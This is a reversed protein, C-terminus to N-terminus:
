RLIERRESTQLAQEIILPEDLSMAVIFFAYKGPPFLDGVPATFSLMEEAGIVCDIVADGDFLPFPKYDLIAAFRYRGPEGAVLELLFTEAERLDSKYIVSMESEDPVFTAVNTIHAYFGYGGYRNTLHRRRPTVFTSTQMPVLPSPPSQYGDALLAVVTHSHFSSGLNNMNEAGFQIFDIRGLGSSFAPTFAIKFTKSGTIEASLHTLKETAGPITFEMPVGDCFVMFGMKAAGSRENIMRVNFVLEDGMYAFTDLRNEGYKAKMFPTGPIEVTIRVSFDGHVKRYDWYEMFERVEDFQEALAEVEEPWESSTPTPSANISLSSTTALDSSNACAAPLVLSFLLILALCSAKCLKGMM